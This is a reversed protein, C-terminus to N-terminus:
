NVYLKFLYGKRSKKNEKILKDIQNANVGTFKVADKKKDFIYHEDGIIVEIKVSRTLVQKDISEISRKIGIKKLSIKEKHEETFKIGKRSESLKKRSYDSMKRGLNFYNLFPHNEPLKSGNRGDGGDTLNTLKINEEKFAKILNIEEMLIDDHKECVKIIEMIPLKKIDLLSKIWSSKYTKVGKKADRLHEWFRTKPRKSYGVYKVINSIPDKLTYLYYM